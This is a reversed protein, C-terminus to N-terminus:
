FRKLDQAAFTWEPTRIVQTKSSIPYWHNSRGQNKLVHIEQAPMYSQALLVVVDGTTDDVAKDVVIVAHGPSGGQILVDGIAIEALPVSRLEQSLSLTGAYAFVMNLYSRFSRYSADPRNRDVWRVTNGNVSIREGSRWRSYPAAFGNTFHFSIEDFAASNWHYEARLRMVADACQQLDRDGVDLDIVAAHAKQNWKQRGNYLLVPSDPPKLPLHRLYHAFSTPDIAVRSFGNPPLFRSLIDNGSTDVLAVTAQKDAAKGALPGERQVNVEASQCACCFLLAALLLSVRAEM